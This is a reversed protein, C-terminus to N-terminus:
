VELLTARLQRFLSHKERSFCSTNLSPVIVRLCVEHRMSHSRGMVILEGQNTVLLDSIVQLLSSSYILNPSRKSILAYDTYRSAVSQVTRPDFRPPPLIKRVQGSRGQPGGLRRYLPYRIKGPPLSRGPRSASGEGRRTGYYFFLLAIGRSGGISRVAQVTCLRLSQVLTCNVKKKSKIVM